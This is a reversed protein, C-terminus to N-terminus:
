AKNLHGQTDPVGAAEDTVATTEATNTPGYTVAQTEDAETQAEASAAQTAVVEAETPRCM